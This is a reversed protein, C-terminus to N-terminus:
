PEYKQLLIRLIMHAQHAACLTVRSAVLGIGDEIDSVEDGCIYLHNTVKRTQISNASSFGSMGSGSILYKDPFNEMVGNVLMAKEEAKDFAECIITEGSLLEKINQETIRLTDITVECYPAIVQLTDRLAQTKYMGLQSVTYQQRNLNSIDVRDYDMLHLRGIGARALMIAINSGLGGLGCIAVSAESFKKQTEVGYREELACYMEEKSPIEVM